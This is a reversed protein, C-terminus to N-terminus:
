SGFSDVLNDVLRLPLEATAHPPEDVTDCTCTQEVLNINIIEYTRGNYNFWAGVYASSAERVIHAAPIRSTAIDPSAVVIKTFRIHCCLSSNQQIYFFDIGNCKIPNFPKRLVEPPVIASSEISNLQSNIACYQIPSNKTPKASSCGIGVGAGLIMRINKLALTTLIRLYVIDNEKMASETKLTDYYKIIRQRRRISGKIASADTVQTFLYYFAERPFFLRFSKRAQQSEAVHFLSKKIHYSLMNIAGFLRMSIPQIWYNSFYLSPPVSVIIGENNFAYRIFYLNGAGTIHVMGNELEQIPVIFVINIISTISSKMLDTTAILEEVSSQSAVPFMSAMVPPLSFQRMVAESMPVYKRLKIHTSTVSVVEGVVRCGPEDSTVAVRDGVSIVTKIVEDM